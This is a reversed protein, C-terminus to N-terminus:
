FTDREILGKIPMLLIGQSNFVLAIDMFVYVRFFMFYHAIDLWVLCLTFTGYVQCLYAWIMPSPEQYVGNVGWPPQSSFGETDYNDRSM